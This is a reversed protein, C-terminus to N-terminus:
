NFISALEGYAPLAGRTDSRNKLGRGCVGSVCM